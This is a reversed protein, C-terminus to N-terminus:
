NISILTGLDPSLRNAMLKSMIKSFSHSLSITRFDAAYLPGHKKPVLVVFAQNLYHLEQQNMQYFFQVAKILDERIIEWYSSFFIGIFGDAWSSKGKPADLIVRKLEEETFPLELHSLDKPEWGLDAFNLSCTRPM